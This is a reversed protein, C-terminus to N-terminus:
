AFVMCEVANKKVLKRVGRISLLKTSVLPQIPSLTSITYAPKTSKPENTKCLLHTQGNHVFSLAGLEWNIQPNFKKLWTMGLIADCGKLPVSVFNLQDSYSDIQINANTVIHNSRAVIGTALEVPTSAKQLKHKILHHQEALQQNIFCCSAGCDVLVVAPKGEVNANLKILPSINLLTGTNGLHQVSLENGVLNLSHASNSHHKDTHGVSQWDQKVRTPRILFKAEAITTTTTTQTSSPLLSRCSEAEQLSSM